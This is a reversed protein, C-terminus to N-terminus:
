NDRVGRVAFHEAAAAEPASVAAALIPRRQRRRTIPAASVAQFPRGASAAIGFSLAGTQKHTQKGRRDQM